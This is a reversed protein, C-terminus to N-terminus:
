KRGKKASAAILTLVPIAVESKRGGDWAVVASSPNPDGRLELIVGVRADYSVRDGIKLSM